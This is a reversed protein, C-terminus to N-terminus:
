RQPHPYLPRLPRERVPLRSARVAYNCTNPVGCKPPRVHGARTRRGWLYEDRIRPVILGVFGPDALEGGAQSAVPYVHGEVLPMGDGAVLQGLEHLPYDPPTSI